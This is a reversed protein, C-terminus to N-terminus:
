ASELEAPNSRSFHLMNERHNGGRAAEGSSRVAELMAPIGRRIMYAQVADMTTGSEERGGAPEASTGSSDPEAVVEANQMMGALPITSRM